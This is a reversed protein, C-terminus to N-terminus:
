CPLEWSGKPLSPDVQLPRKAAEMSTQPLTAKTLTTKESYRQQTSQEKPTYLSVLWEQPVRLSPTTKWSCWFCAQCINPRGKKLVGGVWLLVGHAEFPSILM